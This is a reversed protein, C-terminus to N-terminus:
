ESSSSVVHAPAAGGKGIAERVGEIQQFHRLQHLAIAEIWAGLRLRILPSVPSALAPKRLDLGDAAKCRVILSDQLTVFRAVTSELAHNPTPVYIKPSKAKGRGSAPLPGVSKLFIRSLLPYRFPGDGHWKRIRAEDIGVDIRPLLLEGIVCLHDINEAISWAGSAPRQNFTDDTLDSTLERVRARAETFYQIYALLQANM